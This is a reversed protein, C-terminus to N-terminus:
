FSMGPSAGGVYSEITHPAFYATNGTILGGERIGLGAPEGDIMWVGLVPRHGDFEPLERLEQYIYGEGGYGGPNEAVTVGDRVLSVNAGERSWLPKRAYSRMSSPQQGEFYSPLLLEHGPFLEWLVPLLAKGSWLATWPPEIWTTGRMLPDAMNQFIPKGGEEHWLWEWPYLIFIIDIPAGQYRMSSDAMDLGIESMTLLRTPFGAQLATEMLYAANTLDEGSRERGDYAFHIVPKEPLWPRAARLEAINRQWAAILREHVSSWQREPHWTQMTQELWHWQIVAAELLSTPTQANYELLKPQTGAGAYWFDFRGYVSPSFDAGPKAYAHTGFLDKDAHQWAEPSNDLWTRIIQEHAFEPIGIRTLLCDAPTCVQELYGKSRAERHYRPCQRVMHDGAAVCMRQLQAAAEELVLIEALSFDYFPGERWYDQDFTFGLERNTEQWGARTIGNAVRRM